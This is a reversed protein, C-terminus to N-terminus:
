CLRMLSKTCSSKSPKLCSRKKKPPFLHSLPDLIESVDHSKATIFLDGQFKDFYCEDKLISDAYAERKIGKKFSALELLIPSRMSAASSPSTAHSVPTGPTALSRASRMDHNTLNFWQEGLIFYFGNYKQDAPRNQSILLIMYNRLSILQKVTKTQLYTISGDSEEYKQLHRNEEFEIPDWTIVLITYDLIAQSLIWKQIRQGKESALPHGMLNTIAHIWEHSLPNGQSPNSEPSEPEQPAAVAQPSSMVLSQSRTTTM